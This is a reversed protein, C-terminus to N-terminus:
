RWPRTEIEFQYALKDQLRNMKENTKSLENCLQMVKSDSLLKAFEKLEDMHPVALSSLNDIMHKVDPMARYTDLLEKLYGNETKQIEVQSKLKKNETELEISKIDNTMKFKLDSIEKKLSDNEKKIKEIDTYKFNNLQKEVIFYKENAQELKFKLTEIEIRLKECEIQLTNNESQFKNNEEKLKNIEEKAIFMYVRELDSCGYCAM